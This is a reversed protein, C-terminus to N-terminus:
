VRREIAPGYAKGLLLREMAEGFSKGGLYLQEDSDTFFYYQGKSDVFVMIHDNHADAIACLPPLANKWPSVVVHKQEKPKKFFRINSSACEQGLGCQGVELGGFQDFISNAVDAASEGAELVKYPQGAFGAAEFFKRITPPISNM